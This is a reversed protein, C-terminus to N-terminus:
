MMVDQIVLVQSQISDLLYITGNPAVSLSQPGIPVGGEVHTKVQVHGPGDGVTITVVNTLIAEDSKEATSAQVASSLALLICLSLLISKAFFKSKM